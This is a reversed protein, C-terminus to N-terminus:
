RGEGLSRLAAFVSAIDLVGVPRGEDLASGALYGGSVPAAATLEGVDTVEDIALGARLGGSEAVLIRSPTGGPAGFLAALDFVPLVQGRLNRVGLVVSGAGPVPTLEGLTAIERVCEVPLAYQGAGVRVRVHVSM